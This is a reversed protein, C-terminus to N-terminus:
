LNQKQPWQYLLPKQKRNKKKVRESLTATISGYKRNHQARVGIRQIREFDVDIGDTCGNPTQPYNHMFMSDQMFRSRLDTIRNDLITMRRNM